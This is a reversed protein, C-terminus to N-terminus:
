GGGGRDSSILYEVALVSVGIAAYGVGHSWTWVAYDILGFGALSLVATRLAALSPLAKALIRGLHVALPTRPPRRKAARDTRAQRFSARFTSTVAM